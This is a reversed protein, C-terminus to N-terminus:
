SHLWGDSNFRFFLYLAEAYVYCKVGPPHVTVNKAQCLIFLFALYRYDYPM